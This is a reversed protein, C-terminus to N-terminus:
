GALSRPQHAQGVIVLQGDIVVFSIAEHAVAERDRDDAMESRMHELWDEARIAGEVQRSFLIARGENPRANLRRPKSRKSVGGTASSGIKARSGKSAPITSIASGNQPRPLRTPAIRSRPMKTCALSMKSRLQGSEVVGSSKKSMRAAGATHQDAIRRVALCRRRDLVSERDAELRDDKQQRRSIQVRGIAALADVLAATESADVDQIRPKLVHVVLGVNASAALGRALGLHVAPKHKIRAM